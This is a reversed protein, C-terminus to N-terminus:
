PSYRPPRLRRHGSAGHGGRRERAFRRGPCVDGRRWASRYEEVTRRGAEARLDAVVVRAGEQAFLLATARGIGSGAGTILAVKNSLRMASEGEQAPLYYCLALRFVGPSAAPASDCAESSHVVPHPHRDVFSDQVPLRYRYRLGPQDRRGPWRSCYM